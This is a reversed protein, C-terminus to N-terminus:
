TREIENWHIESDMDIALAFSIWTALQGKPPPIHGEGWKQVYFYFRNTPHLKSRFPQLHKTVHFEDTASQLYIITNKLPSAYVKSLDATKLGESRVGGWAKTEYVDVFSKYYRRINTQPNWVVGISGDLYAGISMAGFGGGSGGIIVVRSAEIVSSIKAIIKALDRPLDPQLSSGAYWALKLDGDLYLSPDSISLRSVHREASMGVGVLYPLTARATMAGHLFVLLPEGPAKRLSMDIPLANHTVRIKGSDLQQVALFEALSGFTLDEM